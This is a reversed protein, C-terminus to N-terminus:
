NSIKYIKVEYEKYVDNFRYNKLELEEGKDLDIIKKPKIKLEFFANIKKNEKNVSIIYYNNDYFKVISEIENNKSKIINANSSLIIPMLNNIKESLIGFEDWRRKFNPSHQIDFYNYYLIGKAGHIIGLFTMAKEEKYSPERGLTFKLNEEDNKPTCDLKSCDLGEKWFKDFYYAGHAQIVFIFPRDNVLNNVKIMEKSMYELTNVNDYWFPYYDFGFLDASDKFRSIENSKFIVQFTPHNDIEKIIDSVNKVNEAKNLDLEDNIYWALISPHDKFELIINNILANQDKSNFLKLSDLYGNYRLIKKNYGISLNIFPYFEKLPYIIKINKTNAYDLFDKIENKNDVLNLDYNLLTNFKANSLDDLSQYALNISKNEKNPAGNSYWGFIFFDSNYKEKDLYFKNESTCSNLLVLAIILIYKYVKM